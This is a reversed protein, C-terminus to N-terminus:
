EKGREGIPPFDKPANSEVTRCGDYAPPYVDGKIKSERLMSQYLIATQMAGGWISPSLRIGRDYNRRAADPRERLQGAPRRFAM